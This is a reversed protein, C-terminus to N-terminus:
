QYDLADLMKTPDLHRGVGTTVVLPLAGTAQVPCLAYALM